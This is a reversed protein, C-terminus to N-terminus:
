IQLMKKLNLMMFQSIAGGINLIDCSISFVIQVVLLELKCICLKEESKVTYMASLQTTNTQSTVM